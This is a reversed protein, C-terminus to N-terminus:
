KSIENINALPQIKITNHRLNYLDPALYQNPLSISDFENPYGFFLGNKDGPELHIGMRTYINKLINNSDHINSCDILDLASAYGFYSDIGRYKLMENFHKKLRTAVGQGRLNRNTYLIELKANTPYQRNKITEATRIDYLLIGAPLITKDELSLTYDYPQNFFGQILNHCKKDRSSKIKNYDETSMIKFELLKGFISNQNNEILNIMVFSNNNKDKVIIGSCYGNPNYELTTKIVHRFLQLEVSSIKNQKKNHLNNIIQGILGNCHTM